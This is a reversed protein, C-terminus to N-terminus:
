KKLYQALQRAIDRYNYFNGDSHKRWSGLHVEYINIPVSTPIRKSKTKLYKSDTWNYECIGYIKSANEPRTCFHFGYPDSKLVFSNNKQKICYKKSRFIVFIPSFIIM